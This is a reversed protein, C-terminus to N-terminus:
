RNSRRSMRPTPCRSRSRSCRRTARTTASSEGSWARSCRRCCRATRRRSACGRPAPDRQHVPAADCGLPQCRRQRAVRAIRAIRRRLRLGSACAGFVRAAAFASSRRGRRRVRLAAGKGHARPDTDDSRVTARRRPAAAHRPRRPRHTRDRATRSAPSPPPQRDLLAREARRGACVGAGACRLQRTRHCGTNRGAFVLQPVARSRRRVCGADVPRVRRLHGGTRRPARLLSGDRRSLWVRWAACAADPDARRGKRLRYGHLLQQDGRVRGPAGSAGDPRRGRRVARTAPVRCRLHARRRALGPRELVGPRSLRHPGGEAVAPVLRPVHRPQRDLQPLIRARDGGRDASFDDDTATAPDALLLRSNFINLGKNEMAGLNFDDACFIMFTDLDYERGYREEDWRM